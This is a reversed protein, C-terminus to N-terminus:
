DVLKSTEIHFPFPIRFFLDCIDSETLQKKEKKDM